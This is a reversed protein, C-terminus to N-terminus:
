AALKASEELHNRLEGVNWGTVRPGLKRPTPILGAQVRRWITAESVALLACVTPLRVFASSPLSDFSQLAALSASKKVHM